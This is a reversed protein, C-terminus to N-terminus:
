GSSTGSASTSRRYVLFYYAVTALPPLFLLLAFWIAKQLHLSHDSSFWFYWMGIWLVAVGLVEPLFLM